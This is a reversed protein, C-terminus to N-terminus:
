QALYSAFVAEFQELKYGKPTRVGIRVTEPTIEYHALMRALGYKSMPKGTKGWEAWPRGEKEVLHKVLAESAFRDVGNGTFVDRIDALLMVGVSQADDSRGYLAAASRARAPWEGGAADAIALLPRWNDAARNIMGDPVTPDADWIREANDGAWRMIREAAHNLHDVRDFRFPTIPESPRRRQLTVAISRDAITGPLKGIAAIACPAFTNFKRPEHDDGVVRIVYGDRRHGSNLIGRLEENEPLFTDSEDILLTPRQLEIIRFVAAARVNDTMLPRFVFHSLVDRLTTKGCQKEPSTIALRPSIGFGEILFTHVIWLAVADAMHPRMVVYQRIGLALENLLKAGDVAIPWPEPETFQLPRGQKGADAVNGHKAAIVSDLVAIRLGLKEAAAKREREYEILPLKALRAFEADDTADDTTSDLPPADSLTEAHRFVDDVSGMLAAKPATM